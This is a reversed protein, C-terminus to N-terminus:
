VRERCSARGIEMIDVINKLSGTAIDDLNPAADAKILVSLLIAAKHQKSILTEIPTIQNKPESTVLAVSM